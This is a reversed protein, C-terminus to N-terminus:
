AGSSITQVDATPYWSLLLCLAMEAGSRAASEKLEDIRDPAMSLNDALTFISSPIDWTPWLSTFVGEGASRIRSMLSAVQELRSDLSVVCEAMMEKSWCTELVSGTPKSLAGAELHKELM